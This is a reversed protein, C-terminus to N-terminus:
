QEQHESTITDLVSRVKGDALEVIKALLLYPLTRTCPVRSRSEYRDHCSILWTGLIKM